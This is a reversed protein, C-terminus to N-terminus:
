LTLAPTLGAAAALPFASRALAKCRAQILDINQGKILGDIACHTSYHCNPCLALLPTAVPKGAARWWSEPCVHHSDLMPQRHSAYLGCTQMQVQGGTIVLELRPPVWVATM